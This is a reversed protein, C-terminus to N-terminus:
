KGGGKKAALARGHLAKLVAMYRLERAILWTFVAPIFISLSNYLLLHVGTQSPSPLLVYGMMLIMNYLGLRANCLGARGVVYGRKSLRAAAVARTMKRQMTDARHELVLYMLGMGLALGVFIESQALGLWASTQELSPM